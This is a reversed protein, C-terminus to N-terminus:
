PKVEEAVLEIWEQHDAKRPGLPLKVAEGLKFAGITRASETSLRLRKPTPDEARTSSYTIDLHIMGNKVKGTKIHVRQGIEVFQIGSSGDPAAVQSGSFFSCDRGERTVLRPMAVVKLTGKENDGLPDGQCVRVTCRVQKAPPAKEVEAVIITGALLSLASAFLFSSGM